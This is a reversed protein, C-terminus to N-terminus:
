ALGAAALAEEHSQYFRSRVVDTGSLEWVEAWRGTLEIGSGRGRNRMEFLAVAADGADVIREVEFALIEWAEFAESFYRRAGEHGRTRLGEEAGTPWGFDGYGARLEYLQVHAVAVGDAADEGRQGPQVDQDVVRAAGGVAREVPGVGCPVQADEFEVEEGGEGHGEGRM